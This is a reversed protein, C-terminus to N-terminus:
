SSWERYDQGYGVGELPANRICIVRKVSSGSNRTIKFEKEQGQRLTSGLGRSSTSWILVARAQLRPRRRATRIRPSEYRAVTWSTLSADHILKAAVGKARRDDGSYVLSPRPKKYM